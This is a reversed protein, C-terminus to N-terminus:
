VPISKAFSSNYGLAYPLGAWRPKGTVAPPCVTSWEQGHGAAGAKPVWVGRTPLGLGSAVGSGPSCPDAAPLGKSGFGQCLFHCHHTTKCSCFPLLYSGLASMDPFGLPHPRALGKLKWVFLSVGFYRFPTNIREPKPWKKQYQWRLLCKCKYLLILWVVEFLQHESM